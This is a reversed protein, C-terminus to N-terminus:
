IMWAWLWLTKTELIVRQSDLTLHRGKFHSVALSTWKRYISTMWAINVYLLSWKLINKFYKKISDHVRIETNGKLKTFMVNNNCNIFHQATKCHHYQRYIYIYWHSIEKYIDAGSVSSRNWCKCASLMTSRIVHLYICYPVTLVLMTVTLVSSVNRLLLDNKTFIQRCNVQM